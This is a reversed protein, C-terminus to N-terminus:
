GVRITKMVEVLFSCGVTPGFVVFLLSLRKLALFVMCTFTYKYLNGYKAHQWKLKVISYTIDHQAM